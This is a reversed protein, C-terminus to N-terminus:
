RGRSLRRFYDAVSETYGQPVARSPNSRVQSSQDDLKRRIQLEMQELNALVQSRLQEVLEPNGKFRSPELRQMERILNQVERAVDPNEGMERGVQNLERMGERYAQEVGAFSTAGGNGADPLYGGRNIASYDGQGRQGGSRAEEQGSAGGQGQGGKAEGRGDRGQSASQSEGQGGQGQQGGQQGGEQGQQGQKAQQGRGGKEGQGPQQGQGQQQGPQQGQGQEGKQGQKGQGQQNGPNRGMREMQQRMKEVRNLASELEQQGKTGGAGPQGKDNLASQAERMKERLSELADNIPAERMYAYAGYGRRIFESSQKLRGSLERQQMDGLAERVKNAAGRQSGAMDRAATQMERELRALDDAMKQREAAMQENQERSGSPQGNLLSPNGFASRMKRTQDQQRNALEETKRALEDLSGEAQQRRAGGLLDRAEQLREAARRADADNGQQGQQGAASSAAKRMDEQSQKLRDIAQQVRPDLQQQQNRAQQQQQKGGTSGPQQNGSQAQQQSQSGSQQGQQGQSGPSNRQLQEMQRQLQEAERRLMEQQWRQEPSQKNQQQKALEQQRRALQELKQLAEDVEKSKQEAASQQGTEYQNKETDLELDFLNELDRAAGGGGGGGGQRGFAVQIQRFTSEARLLHQLAKQEHPMADQWKRGKLEGAARTMAEAAATMDKAFNSFEQNQASLERSQMRRALSTAQDKLKAQVEALFKGAEAAEADTIKKDRQQNWTASIIEKQRESIKNPDEGGGGGGGGSQQQQQFEKEFPQAEIFMMDTRTTQKADKATAYYSVVDGPILKHDELAIITGGSISRQGSQKGGVAVTQEPGGNVSYHLQVERLGYDDDADVQIAVEEIPSAKYDKGPKSLKLTPPTEPKAEIFFDDSIRVRQGQDMIAVHYVGNKEIKLAANYRNKGSEAVLMEAEPQGEFGVVLKGDKLPQDTALDLLAETGTVARLDGGHEVVEEALGSWAPYKFTVRINRVTPLDMVKLTYEPSKLPGAQVYYDVAEPLGAFLFEFASGSPQPQMVVPEWKATSHFRAFLQVKGSNMGRLEAKILQDSKRRVMANGPSVKVDYFAKLDGKPTGAWLLSAGHGFYGPGALILWLLVGLAGVGAASFGALQAAPALMKPESDKAVALTDAALLEVFPDNPRQVGKDAFTVLRQEFAPFQAEARSAARRRNLKLLPIVIGMALAFGLILFLAIRAGTLSGPSFAWANIIMVLLVTAALAAGFVIAGGSMLAGLRLRRELQGLYANLQERTSM